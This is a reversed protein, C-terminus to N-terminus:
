CLAQLASLLKGEIKVPRKTDRHVFVHTMKGLACALEENQKFLALQYTVSSNGLHTVKIGATLQDPFAIPAFYQCNSEVIFGISKGHHIDLDGKEILFTNIVSDFYAYYTVNNVHGYIDNDAWRTQVPYFTSYEKKHPISKSTM